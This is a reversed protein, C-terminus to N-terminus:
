VSECSEPAFVAGACPILELLVPATMGITGTRRHTKICDADLLFGYAAYRDFGLLAYKEATRRRQAVIYLVAPIYDVVSLRRDYALYKSHM